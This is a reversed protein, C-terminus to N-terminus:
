RNEGKDVINAVVVLAARTSALGGFRQKLAQNSERSYPRDAPDFGQFLGQEDYRELEYTVGEITTTNDGLGEALIRSSEDGELPFVKCAVKAIM